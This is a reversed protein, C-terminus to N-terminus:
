ENAADMAQLIEETLKYVDQLAMFATYGPEASVRAYVGRIYGLLLYLSQSDNALEHADDAAATGGRPAEAPAIWDVWVGVAGSYGIFQVHITLGDTSEGIVEGKAGTLIENGNQLRIDKAAVIKQGREFAKM